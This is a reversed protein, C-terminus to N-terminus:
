IAHNVSLRSLASRRRAEGVDRNTSATYLSGGSLVTVFFASPSESLRKVTLKLFRVYPSPPPRCLRRFFLLFM